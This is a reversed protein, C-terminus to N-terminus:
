TRETREIPRVAGSATLVAGVLYVGIGVMTAPAYAVRGEVLQLAFVALPGLATIAALTMTPLLAIAKQMALVPFAIMAVGVLLVVPLVPGTADIPKADVGVAAAIIAVAVYLPFRLGYQAVPGVGRRDLHHGYLMLAALSTASLASLLLGALAVTVGGRVFGSQGMLTIACLYAMAFGIIALGAVEIWSNTSATEPVGLRAAAVVSLPVLGSFLTFVVAPEIMQIAYFYAVWVLMTSVNLGILSARESWAIGFQAPSRSATWALAVTATTGFVLAGVLFADRAQFVGGFYVAQVAELLVFTFAWLLGRTTGRM